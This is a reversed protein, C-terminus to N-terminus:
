DYSKSSEHLFKCLLIGADAAMVVHSVLRVPLDLRVLQNLLADHAVADFVHAPAVGGVKLLTLGAESLEEGGLVADVLLFKVVVQFRRLLHALLHELAELHELALALLLSSVLHGAALVHFELRLIVGEAALVLLEVVVTRGDLTLLLENVLSPVHLLFHHLLLDVGLQPLEVSLLLKLTLHLLGALLLLLDLVGHCHEVPLLLSALDLTGLLLVKDLSLLLHKLLLPCNLLLLLLLIGLLSEQQVALAVELEDLVVCHLLLEALLGFLGVPLTVLHEEVLGEGALLCNLLVLRVLAHLAASLDLLELRVVLVLLAVGCGVLLHDVIERLNLVILLPIRTLLLPATLVLSADVEHLVDILIALSVDQQLLGHLLLRVPQLLIVLLHDVVLDVALIAQVLLACELLCVVALSMLRVHKALYSLAVPGHAAVQLVAHVLLAGGFEGLELVLLADAGLLLIIVLEEGGPLTSNLAM